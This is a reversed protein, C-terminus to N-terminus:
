KRKAALLQTSREAAEQVLFGMKPHTSELDVALGRGRLEESTLPGISAIVVRELCQRLTQGRATQEAVRFLHRLQVSSTVLLVDIEGHIVAEIARELPGLDEPLAWQYVAVSTVVAGRQRLGDLLEPNSVGYEIVVIRRNSLRVTEANADLTALVDRWTNPEPVKLTTRVGMGELAAVPKPGRAVVVTRNLGAALQERPCDHEVVTALARVGSGTMFVVIDVQGANLRAIFEQAESNSTIPVERMSPAVMPVGGCSTILKAIEVSRRSELSLVRLGKFDVKNM